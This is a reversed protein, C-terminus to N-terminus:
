QHRCPKGVATYTPSVAVTWVKPNGDMDNGAVRIDTPVSGLVFKHRLTCEELQQSCITGATPASQELFYGPSKPGVPTAHRIRGAYCPNPLEVDAQITIASKASMGASVHHVKVPQWVNTAPASALTAFALIILVSISRLHKM